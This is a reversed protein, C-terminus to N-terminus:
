FFIQKCLTCKYGFRGPYVCDPNTYNNIYITSNLRGNVLPAVIDFLLNDNQYKLTSTDITPYFDTQTQTNNNWTCSNVPAM